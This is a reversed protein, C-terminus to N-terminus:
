ASPLNDIHLTTIEGAPQFGFIQGYFSLEAELAKSVADASRFGHGEGEFLLYAVPLGREKLASVMTEAQNPPVVKDESGQLFLIPCNLGEVHNVASRARYTEAELPWPGILSDMYRSEFKHTDRVLIELDGIGYSSRGAKFVDRFALASLTTYGGASGGVIALREPDVDGRKALFLAANCCDDVDVIGWNGKLRDRYARGYGTSGGYNVDAVAFGRTTWFQIKAAYCRDTQGTPGGHGMVILPPKEDEPVTYGANMPRYFYAFAELGGETPFAVTEAISVYGPDPDHAAANRIVEFPPSVGLNPAGPDYTVIADPGDARGATLIARGHAAVIGSFRAWDTDLKSLAGTELNLEALHWDGATAYSVLATTDNLFAYTRMGFQWLPLGFEADFAFHHPPANDRAEDRTGSQAGDRYLNWFGSSDCVYYLTGDPSYSPQFISTEPGGAVLRIQGLLGADSLVAERCETGDWPMNPHRWEIWALRDAKPSLTPAAYFDAGKALTVRSGDFGIAVLSNEPEKGGGDREAIAILRSRKADIVFDAYETNDDQTIAKPATLGEEDPVFYLRRDFGNLYYVGTEDAAFARGGYEHVRSIVTQDTGCVEEAPATGRQRLLVTRGKEWPRQETWYLTRGVIATFGLGAMGQTITQTTIPSDWSGCPASIPNAQVTM